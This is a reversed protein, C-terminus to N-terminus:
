ISISGKRFDTKRLHVNICVPRGSRAITKAESLTQDVRAPDLHLALIGQHRQFALHGAAPHLMAGLVDGRRHGTVVRDLDADPDRAATLAADRRGSGVSWASVM